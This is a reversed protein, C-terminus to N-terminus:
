GVTESLRIGDSESQRFGDNDTLKRRSGVDSETPNWRYSGILDSQRFDDSGIFDSLRFYRRIWHFQFGLNM